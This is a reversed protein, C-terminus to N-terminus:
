VPRASFSVRIRISVQLNRTCVFIQAHLYLTKDLIKSVDPRIKEVTPQALARVAVHEKSECVGM